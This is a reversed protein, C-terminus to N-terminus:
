FNMTNGHFVAKVSPIVFVSIYQIGYHSKEKMDFCLSVTEIVQFSTNIESGMLLTLVVCVCVGVGKNM